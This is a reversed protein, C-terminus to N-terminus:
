SKSFGVDNDGCPVQLSCIFCLLANKFVVFSSPNINQLEVKARHLRDSGKSIAELSKVKRKVDQHLKETGRERHLTKALTIKVLHYLISSSEWLGLARVLFASSAVVVAAFVPPVLLDMKSRGFLSSPLCFVEAPVDVPVRVWSPGEVPCGRSFLSNPSVASVFALEPWFSAAAVTVTLLTTWTAAYVLLPLRPTLRQLMSNVLSLTM